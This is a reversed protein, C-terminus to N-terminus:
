DDDEDEEAASRLREVEAQAEDLKPGYEMVLRM